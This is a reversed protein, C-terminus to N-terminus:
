ERKNMLDLMESWLEEPKDKLAKFKNTSIGIAHTFKRVQTFRLDPDSKRPNGNVLSRTDPMAAGAVIMKFVRLITKNYRKTKAATSNKSDFANLFSNPGIAIGKKEKKARKDRFHQKFKRFLSSGVDLAMAGAKIGIGVPASAGGLTAVDGSIKAMAVAIKLIARNARKTNVYQLGKSMLYLQFDENGECDSLFTTESATLSAPDNEAKKTLKKYLTAAEFKKGKTATVDQGSPLTITLQKAGKKYKRKETQMRNRQVLAKVLAFARVTIDVTGLAIGLGPVANSLADGAPTATFTDLFNKAASVGSSAMEILNSVMGMTDEFKEQGTKQDANKALDVATKVLTYTSKIGEFIDGFMALGGAAEGSKGASKTAKDVLGAIGGAASGMSGVLDMSAEVKDQVNGPGGLAQIAAAIGIFASATGGVDGAIGFDREQNGILQGGGDSGLDGAVDGMFGLPALGEDMAGLLDAGEGAGTVLSLKVWGDTVATGYVDTGAVVKAWGAAVGPKDKLSNKLTTEDVQVAKTPDLITSTSTTDVTAGTSTYASLPLRSKGSVLRQVRAPARRIRGVSEASRMATAGGQQITHTLEHALLHQGTSSTTDPMGDRFYVDNGVTFAKAQIRNSLDTAQAGEHIRVGGFDAGFAGEMKSRADEPMASGGGRSSRISSETDADVSGGEAGVTSVKRQVRRAVPESGAAVQAGGSGSKLSRVVDDAVSDAETEYPDNAPGVALKAQAVAGSLTFAAAGVVRRNVRDSNKRDSAKQDDRDSRKAGDSLNTRSDVHTDGM